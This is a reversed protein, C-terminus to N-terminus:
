LPRRRECDHLMAQSSVRAAEIDMNCGLRYLPLSQGIREILQLAKVMALPNDPLHTQYILADLAEKFTIREIHNTTDRGLLCIAELPLIENLGYHEKGQWPTGCALVRGDSEVKLFPKDGNLVHAQPLHQLWLRTHTTKGTHSPATFIYAKGDVAIVSSHFLLVNYDIIRNAVKRLIALSEMGAEPFSCPPLGDEERRKGSQLREYEIDQSSVSVTFLPTENSLYDEFIDIITSHCPSVGIPIGALSITFAAM